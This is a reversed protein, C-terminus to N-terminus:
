NRDEPLTPLPSVEVGEDILARAEEPSAEGYIPRHEIDGYHMKRAENPFRDGVNDANKVIHDRLEKLKSRLEREQAMMLSTSEAPPAEVPAVPAPQAPERGKKSVIQPAMIAREIKDSGCSPCDILHRREQSEYAASSQFWSEFQHGRECRLTYRIM